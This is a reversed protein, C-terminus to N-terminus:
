REERAVPRIRSGREQSPDEPRRPPGGLRTEKFLEDLQRAVAVLVANGKATLRYSKRARPGGPRDVDRRLWGLKEMRHLIPYLTGPSVDYGHRRLEQLMWQGVVPEEGAHHLIHIKWFALLIERQLAKADEATVSSRRM